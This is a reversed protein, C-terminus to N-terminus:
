VVIIGCVQLVSYILISSYTFFSYILLIGVCSTLVEWTAWHYLMRRGVCSVHTQDRTQSSGTSFYLAVWELTRAQSLEYVSSGPLSYDMLDCLIPCSQAVESEKM